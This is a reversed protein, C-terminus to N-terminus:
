VTVLPRLRALTAPGIGDVEALQDVAAFPGHASRWSLIAAATVPGVGPLEDLAAADATNLNVLGAGGAPAGVDPSSGGEGGPAPAAGEAGVIGSRPGHPGDPGPAVGVLIQEGDAVRRALNLGDRDGGELVGGAAELADAVRADPALTVLGSRHVLGVVSVVVSEPSPAADGPASGRAAAGAAAVTSTVPAAQGGPLAEGPEALPLDPVPPGAPVSGLLRHVSFGGLALVLVVLAVGSLRDPTWRVRRWWPPDAWAGADPAAPPVRVPRRGDPEHDTPDTPTPPDAPAPPDATIRTRGVEDDLWPVGALRRLAAARAPDPDKSPRTPTDTRM